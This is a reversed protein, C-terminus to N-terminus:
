LSVDSIVGTCVSSTVPRQEDVYCLKRGFEHVIKLKVSTYGTDRRYLISVLFVLRVPQGDTGPAGPIGKRGELGPEGQPLFVRVYMYILYSVHLHTRTHIHM